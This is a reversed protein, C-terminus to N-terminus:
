AAAPNRSEIAVGALIRAAAAAITDSVPGFQRTHQDALFVGYEAPTLRRPPKPPHGPPRNDGPGRPPKPQPPRPPKPPTM